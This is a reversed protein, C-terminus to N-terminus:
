PCCGFPMDLTCSGATLKSKVLDVICRWEDNVIFFKKLGRSNKLIGEWKLSTLDKRCMLKLWKKKDEVTMLTKELEQGRNSIGLVRSIEKASYSVTM